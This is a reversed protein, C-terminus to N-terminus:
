SAPAELCTKWRRSKEFDPTYGVAAWRRYSPLITSGRWRPEAGGAVAWDTALRALDKQVASM